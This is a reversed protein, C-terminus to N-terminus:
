VSSLPLCAHWHVWAARHFTRILTVTVIGYGSRSGLRDSKGLSLRLEIICQRECVQHPSFCNMPIACGRAINGFNSLNQDNTAISGGNLMARIVNPLRLENKLQLLM